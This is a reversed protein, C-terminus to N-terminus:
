KKPVPVTARVWLFFRWVCYTRHHFHSVRECWSLSVQHFCFHGCLSCFRSFFAFNIFVTKKGGLVLQELLLIKNVLYLMEISVKDIKKYFIVFLFEMHEVAVSQIKGGLLYSLIVRFRFLYLGIVFHTHAPITFYVPRNDAANSIELTNSLALSSNAFTKSFSVACGTASGLSTLVTCIIGCVSLVGFCSCIM